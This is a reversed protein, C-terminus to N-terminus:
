KNPLKVSHIVGIIRLILYYYPTERPTLLFDRSIKLM